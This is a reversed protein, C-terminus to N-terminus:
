HLRRMNARLSPRVKEAGKGKNRLGRSKKAASTLGRLARKRHKQSIIWKLNKDSSIVPHSKDVLIVEYWFNKGDEALYYSNLVELNHFTRTAREEAIQRYNKNVIKKRRRHKSRRGKKIMPRLRKSRKLRVRAIVFGEKSKYGLSRARDLRTPHELKLIVPDQRWEILRDQNYRKITISPKKYLDRIRHYMGM